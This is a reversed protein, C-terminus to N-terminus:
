KTPMIRVTLRDSPAGVREYNSLDIGAARMADIDITVRGRVQSWHISIGDYQPHRYSSSDLAIIPLEGPHSRVHRGYKRSLDVVANLGGRSAPQYSYLQGDSPVRRVGLERLRNRMAEKQEVATAAADSIADLRIIERGLNAVETIAVPDLAADENDPVTTRALGCLTVFPCFECERGGAIYGEPMTEAIDKAQMIKHARQKATAYIAPDFAVTFETVM